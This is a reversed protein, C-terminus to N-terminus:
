SGAVVTIRVADSFGLGLANLSPDLFAAQKEWWNGVLIPLDPVDLTWLVTSGGAPLPYSLEPKVWLSCGPAGLIGLDIPLPVDRIFGLMGFSIAGTPVDEVRVSFPSGLSAAQGAIPVLRSPPATGGGGFSTAAQSTPTLCDQLADYWIEAFLQEGAVNPHLEDPFMHVALDFRSYHDVIVVRSRASDKRAAMSPMLSNLGTVDVSGMPTIQSVLITAYPNAGRIVDICQELEAITSAPSQGGRTDNTGLHIMAIDPRTDAVWPALQALMHEVRFGSWAEHDQDFDQYQPPGYAVGHNHGVFDFAYGGARLMHDLYYRSSAMGWFSEVISDGIPCIKVPAQASLHLALGAALATTRAIHAV